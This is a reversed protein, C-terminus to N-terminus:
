RSVELGARFARINSALVEANSGFRAKLDKEILAPDLLGTTGIYRGLIIFNAGRPNGIARAQETAPVAIVTIDKREVKDRLGTSDVILVGGPRVREESSKLQSPDLVVVTQVRSLVPSAIAEDSYIVFCECAGGRVAASYNPFWVVHEFTELAARATCEGALLVGGGGVGSFMVEGRQKGPM